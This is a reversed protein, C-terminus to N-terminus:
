IGNLFDASGESVSAILAVMVSLPGLSLATSGGFQYRKGGEGGGSEQLMGAM